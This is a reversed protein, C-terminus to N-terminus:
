LYFTTEICKRVNRKRGNFNQIKLKDLGYCVTVNSTQVAYKQINNAQDTYM